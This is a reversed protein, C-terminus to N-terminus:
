VAGPPPSSPPPPPSPPRPAARRAEIELAWRELQRGAIERGGFGFAIATAVAIAGLMLGFALNVIENALGMQRLAMAGALVLIASKAALALLEANTTGSSRILDAAVNALYLGVAFIILGLVIQGGLQIIGALLDALVLFGLLRLAEVTAFLMVALLVLTGVLESPRRRGVTPTGSTMGLRVPLFDFGVGALLSAVLGSVLRAVVYSILLLVAAAFINPVAALFTNLMNTAPRSIAEIALANLASIIVPVLIFIFLVLGILGSLTQGGMVRTLGVQDGLRDVGAAALLGTVIRRVIRAIFWGILLILGAAVINPLYAFIRNLMELVPTLIGGLELTGLIAPLFMLFVLWYVVDGLTDALSVRGGAESRTAVAPETEAAPHNSPRVEEEDGVMGGLRREIGSRGLVATVIHRLITALIWALALLIAAAILRPLFALMIGLMENLSQSLFTLNLTQLFGILVFLMILWFVLSGVMREAGVGSTGMTRGLRNDLDTRRLAAKVLSSVVAAIIWGVVLVLLATLITLLYTGILRVNNEDLVTQM